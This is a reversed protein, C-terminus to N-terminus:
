QIKVLFSIAEVHSKTLRLQCYKHWNNKPIESLQQDTVKAVRGKSIIEVM